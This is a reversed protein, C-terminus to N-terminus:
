PLRSNETLSFTLLFSYSRPLSSSYYLPLHPHAPLSMISYQLSLVKVYKVLLLTLDKGYSMKRTTHRLEKYYAVSGGEWAGAEGDGLGGCRSAGGWSPTRMRRRIQLISYPMPGASPVGCTTTYFTTRCSPPSAFPLTSTRSTGGRGTLLAAGLCSVQLKSTSSPLSLPFTSSASFLSHPPVFLVCPACVPPPPPPPPPPPAPGTCLCPAAGRAKEDKDREKKRSRWPPVYM